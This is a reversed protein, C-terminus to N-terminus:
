TESTPTFTQGPELVLGTNAAVGVQDDPVGIWVNPGTEDEVLEEEANDTLWFFNTRIV